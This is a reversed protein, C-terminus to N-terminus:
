AKRLHELPVYYKVYRNGDSFRQGKANLVLITARRTIRNVRGHLRHGDHSFCVNDGVRIDFKIAARERQTILNHQYDTHGFYRGAISQFRAENCNGDNWILMETLHVFEHEAVRQMAELRNKCLCGAVEIPRSVDEFTQFLLTSSLVLEFKRAGSAFGNPYQTVLKGGVSTMRSSLQFSLGEASAAKIIQGEFFLDDYMRVMRTLDEVSVKTFNPGDLCRSSMLVYDYIQRRMKERQPPAFKRLAVEGALTGLVQPDRPQPTSAATGVPRTASPRARKAPSRRKGAM